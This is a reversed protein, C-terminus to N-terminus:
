LAASTPSISVNKQLEHQLINDQQYPKNANRINLRISELRPRDDGPQKGGHKKCFRASRHISKMMMSGGALIMCLVFRFTMPPIGLMIEGYNCRIM